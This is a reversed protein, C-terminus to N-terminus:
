ENKEDKYIIMQGPLVYLQQNQSVLDTVEVGSQMAIDELTEDKTIYITVGDKPILLEQNPYIYENKELGNLKELIDITTQFRGALSYLNDGKQVIYKYFINDEIRPVVLYNGPVITFMETIGNIAMLNDVTTGSKKAIAELTDNPMVQYIQYM